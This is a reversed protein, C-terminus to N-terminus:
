NRTHMGKSKKEPEKKKVPEPSKRFKDLKDSCDSCMTGISIQRGCNSCYTGGDITILQLRGETVYRMIEKLTIKIGMENLVETLEKPTIHPQEYVIARANTFKDHEIDGTLVVKRKEPERCDHCLTENDDAGFFKGCNECKKLAM